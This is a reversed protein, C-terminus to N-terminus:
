SIQRGLLIAPKIQGRFEIKTGFTEQAPFERSGQGSRHNLLSELPGAFEPVESGLNMMRIASNLVGGTGQATEQVGTPDAGAHASLSTTVIVSGHLAEPGGKLRLAEVVLDGQVQLLSLGGEKIVDLGEVVRESEMRGEAVERWDFVFVM